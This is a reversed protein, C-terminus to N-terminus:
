QAANTQNSGQATVPALKGRIIKRCNAAGCNCEFSRSLFDETVEYDCTVVDGPNIKKMAVFTEDRPNFYTNPDCSHTVLGTFWEDYIHVDRSKQVTHLESKQKIIGGYIRAIAQGPIFHVRSVICWEFEPKYTKEFKDKTPENEQIPIWPPYLRNEVDSM